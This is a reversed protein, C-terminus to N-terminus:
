MRNRLSFPSGWSSARPIAKPTKAPFIMWPMYFVPVDKILLSANRLKGYGEVTVDLEEGTIRWAPDDGDCTTFEFNKVLFSDDGYKEIRGSNIYVNNEKWFLKANNFIGTNKKFDFSGSEGSLTDEGTEVLFNGSLEATEARKNFLAEDTYLTHIGKKLIVDGKLIVLGEKKQGRMEIAEVDVQGEEDILDSFIEQASISQGFFIPFLLM